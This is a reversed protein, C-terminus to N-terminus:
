LDPMDSDYLCDYAHQDFDHLEALMDLICPTLALMEADNSELSRHAEIVRLAKFFESIRMKSELQVKLDFLRNKMDPSSSEYYGVKMMALFAKMYVNLQHIIGSRLCRLKFIRKDNVSKTNQTDKHTKSVGKHIGSVHYPTQHPERLEPRCM